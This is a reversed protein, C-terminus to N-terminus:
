ELEEEEIVKEAIREKDFHRIKEKYKKLKRELKEVCLTISKYMDESKEKVALKTGNVKLLIEALQTQKEYDLIIEADIIGDYFKGVRSIETRAFEKLRDSPQFHRATFSIRM